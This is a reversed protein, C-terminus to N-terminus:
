FCYYCKNKCSSCTLWFLASVTSPVGCTCLPQQSRERLRVSSLWCSLAFASCGCFSCPLPNDSSCTGESQIHCRVAFSLSPLLRCYPSRKWMTGFHGPNLFFHPLLIFTQLADGTFVPCCACWAAARQLSSEACGRRLRQQAAKAATPLLQHAQRSAGQLHKRLGWLWAPLPPPVAM